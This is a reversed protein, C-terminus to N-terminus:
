NGFYLWWRNVSANISEEKLKKIKENNEVYIDILSAVLSDSKLEPYLSVLVMASDPSVETFIDKEYQQYQTVVEAVQEEIRTKEEQYMTIREDVTSNYACVYALVVVVILAAVGLTGGIASMAFCSENLNTKEYLIFGLIFLALCIGFIVLIM